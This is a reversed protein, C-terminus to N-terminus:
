SGRGWYILRLPKQPRVAGQKRGLRENETLVKRSHNQSVDHGIVRLSSQGKKKKKKKRKMEKMIVTDTDNMQKNSSYPYGCMM